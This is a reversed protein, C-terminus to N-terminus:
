DAADFAALAEPLAQIARMGTAPLGLLVASKVEDRSAGARKAERAHFPVGGTLGLAALVALYALAATKPDLASAGELGQVGGLWARAHDPAETLFAQFADSVGPAAM